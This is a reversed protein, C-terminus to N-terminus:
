KSFHTPTDTKYMGNPWIMVHITRFILRLDQRLTANDIYYLDQQVMDKFDIDNRYTVQWLGSCGPRVYLRQMDYDTYKKVENPLPPRPGILCMDGKLVNVLQPLEDFSHKRLFRGFPTIRPDDKFKFMAGNIQNDDEFKHLIEDAGVVMSRFKYFVFEKGNLGLRIQKYIVPGKDYSKIKIAIILFFPSLLIIGILAFLFGFLRKLSHYIHRRQVADKNLYIKYTPIATLRM